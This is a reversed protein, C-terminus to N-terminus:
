YQFSLLLFFFFFFIWTDGGRECECAESSWMEEKGLMVM